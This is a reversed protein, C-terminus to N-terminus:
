GEAVAARSTVAVWRRGELMTAASTWGSGNDDKWRRRRQACGGAVTGGSGGGGLDVGIRRMGGCSCNGDRALLLDLRLTKKERAEHLSEPNTGRSLPLTKLGQSISPISPYLAPFM